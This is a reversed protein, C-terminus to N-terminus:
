PRKRPRPLDYTHLRNLLTRRSIGLQEAAESQNGGCRALAAVIRDRDLRELEGLLRARPDLPQATASETPPPSRTSRALKAPLQAPEIRAGDCLLVAREMVNRLERINGPWDYSELVSLAEASLEPCHSRGIAASSALAFARALPAIDALRERLPPVHFAM